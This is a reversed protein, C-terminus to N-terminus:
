VNQWGSYTCHGGSLSQATCYALQFFTNRSLPHEKVKPEALHAFVRACYVFLCCPPIKEAGNGVAFLVLVTEGGAPVTRRTKPHETLKTPLYLRKWKPPGSLMAQKPM